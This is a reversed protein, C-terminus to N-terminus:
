RIGGLLRYTEFEADGLKLRLFYVGAAVQPTEISYYTIGEATERGSTILRGAADFLDYVIEGNFVDNFSMQIQTSFPNPFLLYVGVGEFNRRVVLVESDFEYYYDQLTNENVVKLRFFYLDKQGISSYSYTNAVASNVGEADVTTMLEWNIGDESRELEFYSCNFEPLTTWTVTTETSSSFEGIFQTLETQAAGEYRTIVIDDIAVGSSGNQNGDSKFVFRFAVEGLGSLNSINRKFQTWEIYFRSFMVSNLPFGADSYETNRVNYWDDAVEDGLVKWVPDDETRYEVRFGDRALQLDFIAWFSFEYIGPESFDYKPLYLISESNLDYGDQNPDVVFANAGSHTGNKGSFVSSGLEWGSGAVTQVAFQDMSGDFDGAYGADGPQYPLPAEPLIRITKTVPDADDDISLTVDYTGLTEFLHIEEEQDGTGGDSFQWDFYSPNYSKEASFLSEWNVYGAGDADMRAVPDTWVDTTFIGRGHTFV